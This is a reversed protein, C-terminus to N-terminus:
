PTASTTFARPRRTRSTVYDGTGRLRPNGGEVLKVLDDVSAAPGLGDVYWFFGASAPVSIGFPSLDPLTAQTGTTFVSLAYPTETADDDQVVLLRHVGGPSSLWGGGATCPSVRM